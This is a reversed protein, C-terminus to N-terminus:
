ELEFGTDELWEQIMRKQDEPNINEWMEEMLAEIVENKDITPKEM